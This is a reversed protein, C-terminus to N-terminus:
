LMHRADIGNGSVGISGVSTFGQRYGHDPKSGKINVSPELRWERFFITKHRISAQPHTLEAELVHFTSKHHRSMAHFAHHLKRWTLLNITSAVNRYKFNVSAFIFDVALIQAQKGFQKEVVLCQVIINFRKQEVHKHLAICITRVEDPVKAFFLTRGHVIINAADHGKGNM